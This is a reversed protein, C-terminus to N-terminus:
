MPVVTPRRPWDDTRFPSAPLGARNYLNCGPNNAWGYRVAVPKQVRDSGVVVTDGDIVAEAWAFLRDEGAVAFGTLPGGKSVLGGGLETFRIRFRNGEVKADAFLPGCPAVEKLGYVGNLANLALRLGVDQKNRPHIDAAEGVDIAVAMGTAPERLTRLQAERLEAWDSDEPGNPAQLYNALQVFLFPFDGRGWAQRWSRIMAPFLERYEPARPVNSEGQYWIAGRVPFPILPRIMGNFLSFPSNPNGPGLPPQLPTVPGFNHEVKFHWPGSLPLRASEPAGEVGINLDDPSGMIGGAFCNSFVRVAITNRGPRALGPPVPYSRLVEWSNPTDGGVGGVRVNNFYTTDQKDCPCLSLTLKKGAWEAPVEVERRFWVVGSFNMGAGQWYGPLNMAGWDAVGTETAAWGKGFGTNGPDAPYGGEVGGQTKTLYEAMDRELHTLNTEYSTVAERFRPMTLLMERTTWAEAITGGWSANILGVPVGLKRHLERGFFYAVASFDAANGPTCVHWNGVPERPPEVAAVKSVTFLRIKEFSAESIERAKELVGDKMSFDMNSQGSAVWVEGIWVDGIVQKSNKGEVRMEFPGGAQLPELIVQWRGDGGAKARASRKGLTVVVDEGADAWGWVPVPVERQLVM